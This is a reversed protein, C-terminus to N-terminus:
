EPKRDKGYDEDIGTGIWQNRVKEYHIAPDYIEVPLGLASATLHGVSILVGYSAVTEDHRARLLSIKADMLEQETNLQDLVTRTGVRMEARISTRAVDAARVQETLSRINARASQLQQWARNVQDTVKRRTYDAELRKQGATQKAGRTRAASVGGEYLPISLSLLVQHDTTGLYAQDSDNMRRATAQLSLTPMLGSAMYDVDAEAVQATLQAARMDPNTEALAMAEDKSTPLLAVPAPPPSPLVGPVIGTAAQFASRTVELTGEATTQDSLGKALRAEAQAVDTQTVDKVQYRAHVANAQEQLWAVNQRALEAIEQDRYLDYYAQVAGGLVQQEVSVMTALGAEVALQSHRLDASTRGGDYIAQQIQLLLNDPTRWEHVSYSPNAPYLPNINRKTQKYQYIDHGRGHQVQLTAVPRWGGLARAVDDDSARQRARDAEIQPNSTYTTVLVEELTQARAAGCGAFLLFAVTSLLCPRLRTM